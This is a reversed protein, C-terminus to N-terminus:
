DIYKRPNGGRCSLGGSAKPLSRIEMDRPPVHHMGGFPWEFIAFIIYYLIIYYLIIYYLIIYYLITIYGRLVVRVTAEVAFWQSAKNKV